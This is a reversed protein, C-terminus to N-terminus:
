VPGAIEEVLKLLEDPLFPKQLFRIRAFRHLVDRDPDAALYLLPVDAAGAAFVHPINTILLKVRLDSSRAAKLAPQPALELINYGARQLVKSVFRSVRPDEVVVIVGSDQTPSQFQM